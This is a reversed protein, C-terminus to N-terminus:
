VTLKLSQTKFDKKRMITKTRINNRKGVVFPINIDSDKNYIVFEDGKELDAIKDAYKEYAKKFLEKVEDKKIEEGNRPDNVRDFFHGGTIDVKVGYVRSSITPM